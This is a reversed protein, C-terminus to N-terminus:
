LITSGNSPNLVLPVLHYLGDLSSPHINDAILLTLAKKSSTVRCRPIFQYETQHIYFIDRHRCTCTSVKCGFVIPINALYPLNLTEKFILLKFVFDDICNFWRTGVSDILPLPNYQINYLGHSKGM